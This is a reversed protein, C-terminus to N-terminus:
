NYNKNVGFDDGDFMDSSDKGTIFKLTDDCCNNCLDMKKDYLTITQYRVVEEINEDLEDRCKNCIKM